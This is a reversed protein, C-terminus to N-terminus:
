PLQEAKEEAAAAKQGEEPVQPLMRWLAALFYVRACFLIVSGIVYMPRVNLSMGCAVISIAYLLLLIKRRIWLAEKEQRQLIATALGYFLLMEMTFVVGRCLWTLLVHDEPVFFFIISVLAAGIGIAEKWFGKEKRIKGCCYALIFYGLWNPLLNIFGVRVDFFLLVMAFLVWNRINKM